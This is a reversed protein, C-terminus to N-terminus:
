LLLMALVPIVVGSLGGLFYIANLIKEKMKKNKREIHKQTREDSSV